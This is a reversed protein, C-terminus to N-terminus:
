FKGTLNGTDKSIQVRKEPVELHGIGEGVTTYNCFGEPWQWRQESHTLERGVRSQRQSHSELGPMTACTESQVQSPSFELGAKAVSHFKSLNKGWFLFYLPKPATLSTIAPCANPGLNLAGAGVEHQTGTIRASLLCLCSSGQSQSGALRAADTLELHTLYKTSLTSSPLLLLTSLLPSLNHWTYVHSCTHIHACVQVCVCMYVVYVEFTLYFNLLALPM